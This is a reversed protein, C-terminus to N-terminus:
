PLDEYTEPGTKERGALILVEPVEEDVRYVIRWGALMLREIGTTDRSLKIRPPCPDQVLNEIVQRARQRYFGPLTKLSRRTEETYRLRYSM